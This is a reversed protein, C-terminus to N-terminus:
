KFRSTHKILFSVNTFLERFLARMIALSTTTGQTRKTFPLLLYQKAQRKTAFKCIQQDNILM